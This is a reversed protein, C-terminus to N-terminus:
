DDDDDEDDMDLSFYDILMHALGDQNCQYSYTASPREKPV